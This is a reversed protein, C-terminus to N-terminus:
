QENSIQKRPQQSTEIICSGDKDNEKTMDMKQWMRKDDIKKNGNWTTIALKQTKRRTNSKVLAKKSDFITEFCTGHM